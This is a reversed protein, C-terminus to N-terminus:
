AVPARAREDSAIRAARSDPLGRTSRLGRAARSTMATCGGKDSTAPGKEVNASARLSSAAGSRAGRREACKRTTTRTQDCAGEDCGGGAGRGRAREGVAGGSGEGGVGDEEIRGEVRATTARATWCRPARRMTRAPPLLGLRVGERAELGGLQRSGIWGAVPEVRLYIASSSARSSISCDQAYLYLPWVEPDELRLDRLNAGHLALALNGLTDVLAIAALNLALLARGVDVQLPDRRSLLNCSLSMVSTRHSALPAVRAPAPTATREQPHAVPCRRQCLKIRKAIIM